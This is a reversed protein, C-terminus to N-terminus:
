KESITVVQRIFSKGNLIKLMFLAVNKRGITLKPKPSNNISIQIPKVKTSNTLGVPRVITYDLLSNQLMLEQLEHDKYVVGINSNNILWRFWAPIDKKTENTGWASCIIIRKINQEAAIAMMNKISDSLFTKPTRLKALPFDSARSINLVRLVAECGKMANALAARDTPTGEFLFLNNSHNAVKNKDRVLAHINHGNKLAEELLYKGTRGTAGLILINM